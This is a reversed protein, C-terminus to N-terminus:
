ETRCNRCLGYFEISHSKIVFGNEKELQKEQKHLHRGIVVKKIANCNTCVLHHHHDTPLEFFDKHGITNKIVINNKALFMLERYMTSRNPEIKHSKLCALIESTSLLCPSQHLIGIIAKRVKSLRKGKSKITKYITEINMICCHQLLSLKIGSLTL